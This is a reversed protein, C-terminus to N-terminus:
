APILSSLLSFQLAGYRNIEEINNSSWEHFHEGSKIQKEHDAQFVEFEEPTLYFPLYAM